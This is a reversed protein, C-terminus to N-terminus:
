WCFASRIQGDRDIVQVNDTLHLEGEPVPERYREFDIGVPGCRAAALAIGDGLTDSRTFWLGLDTLPIERISAKERVRDAIHIREDHHLYRSPGASPPAEWRHPPM